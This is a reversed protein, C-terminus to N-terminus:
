RVGPLIRRYAEGGDATMVRLVRMEGALASGPITTRDGATISTKFVNRGRLDDVRVVYDGARDLLLSADGGDRMLRVNLGYAAKAGPNVVNVGAPFFNQAFTMSDKLGSTSDSPTNLYVSGQAWPSQTLKKIRIDRFRINQEGHHQLYIGGQHITRYIPEVNYKGANYATNYAASTMDYELLKVGNGYHAIRNNFAVIRLQHYRNYNLSGNPRDWNAAQTRLGFMDYCTGNRHLTSSGDSNNTAAIQTEPGSAGGWDRLGYQNYRIFIGSNGASPVFYEVKFDFNQYTSDITILPVNGGSGNRIVNWTTEAVVAWSTPPNINNWGRWGSLTTGNFLLVYGSAAEETTLANHTTDQATACVTALLGAVASKLITKKFSLMISEAFAPAHIIVRTYRYLVRLKGIMGDFEAYLPTV